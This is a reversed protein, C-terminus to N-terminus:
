QAWGRKQALAWAKKPDGGSLKMFEDMTSKGAQSISNAGKPPKPGQGYNFPNDLKFYKLADQANNSVGPAYPRDAVGPVQRELEGAMSNMTDHQIKASSELSAKLAATGKSLDINKRAEAISHVDAHGKARANATEHAVADVLQDLNAIDTNGTQRAVGQIARNLIGVDSTPPLGNVLKHLAMTHQIAQDSPQLSSFAGSGKAASDLAKQSAEYTQENWDPYKTVLATRLAGGTKSDLRNFDKIDGHYNGFSDVLSAVNSSDLIEGKKTALDIADHARIGEMTRQQAFETQHAEKEAQIRKDAIDSTNKAEYVDKPTIAGTLPKTNIARAEVNSIMGAPIVMRKFSSKGTKDDVDEAVYSTDKETPKNDYAPEMHYFDNGLLKIQGTAPDVEHLPHSGIANQGKWKLWQDREKPDNLANITDNLSAKAFGLYKSGPTNQISNKLAETEAAEKDTMQGGQRAVEFTSAIHDDHAKIQAAKAAQVKQKDNFTDQADSKQQQVKQQQAKQQAAAGAAMGAGFGKQGNAQAQGAGSLGNLMTALLGRFMDGPKRVEPNTVKQMQGSPDVQYSSDHLGGSLAGLIRTGIGPNAQTPATPQSVPANQVPASTDVDPPTLEDPM